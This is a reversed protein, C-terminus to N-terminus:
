KIDCQDICGTKGTIFGGKVKSANFKSVVKKNLTLNKFNRKKM